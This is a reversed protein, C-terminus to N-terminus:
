ASMKFRGDKTATPNWGSCRRGPALPHSATSTATHSEHFVHFGRRQGTGSGTIKRERPSAAFVGLRAHSALVGQVSWFVAEKLNYDRGRLSDPGNPPVAPHHIAPIAVPISDALFWGVSQAQSFRLRTRWQNGKM